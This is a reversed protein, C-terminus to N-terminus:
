DIFTKWEDICEIISMCRQNNSGAVARRLNDPKKNRRTSVDIGNLRGKSGHRQMLCGVVTTGLNQGDKGRLRTDIQVYRAGRIAIRRQMIGKPEAIRLTGPNQDFSSRLKVQFPM